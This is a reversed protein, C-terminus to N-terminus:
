CRGIGTRSATQLHCFLCLFYVKVVGSSLSTAHLESVRKNDAIDLKAERKAPSLSRTATKATWSARSRHYGGCRGLFPQSCCRIFFVLMSGCRLPKKKKIKIEPSAGLGLSNVALEHLRPPPLLLVQKPKRKTTRRVPVTVCDRELFRAAQSTIEGRALSEKTACKECNSASLAFQRPACQQRLGHSTTICARSCQCITNCVTQQLLWLTAM